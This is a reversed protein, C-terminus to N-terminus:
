RVHNILSKVLNIMEIKIKQDGEGFTLSTNESVVYGTKNYTLLIYSVRKTDNEHIIGYETIKIAPVVKSDGFFGFQYAFCAIPTAVTDTNLLVQGSVDSIINLRLCLEIKNNTKEGKVYGVRYVPMRNVVNCFCFEIKIASCVM